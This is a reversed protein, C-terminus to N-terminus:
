ALPTGRRPRQPNSRIGAWYVSKNSLPTVHNWAQETPTYKYRSLIGNLVINRNQPNNPNAAVSGSCSFGMSNWTPEEGRWHHRDFSTSTKRTKRITEPLRRRVPYRPPYLLTCRPGVGRCALFSLAAWALHQDADSISATRIPVPLDYTLPQSAVLDGVM